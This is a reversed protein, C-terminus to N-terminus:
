CNRNIKYRLSSTVDVQILHKKFPWIKILGRLKPLSSCARVCDNREGAVKSNLFYPDPQWLHDFFAPPLTVYDDGDEFLDDSLTLRSERWKQHVFMDVRFDMDEVNISNIDVVFVSFEIVVPNGKGTPPRVEKLYSEPLVTRKITANQQVALVLSADFQSWSLSFWIAVDLVNSFWHAKHIMAAWGFPFHLTICLHEHYVNTVLVVQFNVGALTEHRLLKKKIM